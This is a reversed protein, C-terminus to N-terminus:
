KFMRIIVFYTALVSIHFLTWLYEGLNRNIVFGKDSGISLLTIWSVQIVIFYISSGIISTLIVQDRLKLERNNTISSIFILIALALIIPMIEFFIRLSYLSM